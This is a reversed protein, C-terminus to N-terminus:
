SSLLRGSGLLLWRLLLGWGGRLLWLGGLLWCGWLLWGRWGLSTLPISGLGHWGARAALRMGKVLAGGGGGGVEACGGGAGGAAGGATLGPGIAGGGVEGRAWWLCWPGSQGGLGSGGWGGRVGGVLLSLPSLCLFGACRPHGGAGAAAEEGCGGGGRSACSAVLGVGGPLGDGVCLGWLRWCLVLTDGEGGRTGPSPGEAPM